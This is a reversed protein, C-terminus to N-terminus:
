KNLLDKHNGLRVLILTDAEIRYILLINNDVHCEQFCKLNGKLHHNRYKNPLTQNNQLIEIIKLLTSFNYHKKLLTKVDKDYSLEHIEQLM